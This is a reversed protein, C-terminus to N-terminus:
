EELAERGYRLRVELKVVAEHQVFV